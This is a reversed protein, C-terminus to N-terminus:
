RLKRITVEVTRVETFGGGTKNPMGAAFTHSNRLRLTRRGPRFLRKISIPAVYGTCPTESGGESSRTMDARMDLAGDARQRKGPRKVFDYGGTSAIRTVRLRALRVTPMDTVVRSSTRITQPCEPDTTDVYGPPILVLVALGKPRM